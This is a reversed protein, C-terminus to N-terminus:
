RECIIIEMLDWLLVCWWIMGDDADNNYYYKYNCKCYWKVYVIEAEKCEVVTRFEQVDYCALEREDEYANTGM